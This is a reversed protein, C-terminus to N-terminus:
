STPLNYEEIFRPVFDKEVDKHVIFRKAANCIQGAMNQLKAWPGDKAAKLIPIKLFLLLMAGAWNWFQNKLIKGCGSSCCKWWSERAEQLVSVEQWLKELIEKIEDHEIRLNKFVYEPFGAEKFALEIEDGSGFCISAHKL